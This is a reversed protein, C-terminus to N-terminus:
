VGAITEFTPSTVRLFRAKSDISMKLGAFKSLAVGSDRKAPSFPSTSTEFVKEGRLKGGGSSDLLALRGVEPFTVSEDDDLTLVAGFFVKLVVLSPAVAESIDLGEPLTTVVAVDLRSM